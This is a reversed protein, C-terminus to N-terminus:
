FFICFHPLERVSGKKRWQCVCVSVCLYYLINKTLCSNEEAKLIETMLDERPTHKELSARVPVVVRLLTGARAKSVM